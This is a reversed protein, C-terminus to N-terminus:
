IMPRACCTRRPFAQFAEPTLLMPSCIYDLFAASIRDWKKHRLVDRIETCEECDCSTIPGYFESVPFAQRIQSRLQEADM